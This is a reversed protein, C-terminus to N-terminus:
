SIEPTPDAGRDLVSLGKDIWLKRCGRGRVGPTGPFHTFLWSTPDEPGTEPRMTGPFTGRRRSARAALRMEALERTREALQEPSAKPRRGLEFKLSQVIDLRWKGARTRQGVLTYGPVKVKGPHTAWRWARRTPALMPLYEEAQTPLARELAAFQEATLDDGKAWGRGALWRTWVDRKKACRLHARPDEGGTRKLWNRRTIPWGDAAVRESWPLADLHIELARQADTPKTTPLTIEHRAAWVLAVHGLTPLEAYSWHNPM